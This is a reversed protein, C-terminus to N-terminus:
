MESWCISYTHTYICKFKGVRMNLWLLVFCPKNVYVLNDWMMDCPILLNCIYPFYFKHAIENESIGMTMMWTRPYVQFFKLWITRRLNRSYTRSILKHELEKIFSLGNTMFYETGSNVRIQSRCDNKYKSTQMVNM